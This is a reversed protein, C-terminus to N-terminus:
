RIQDIIRQFFPLEMQGKDAHPLEKNPCMVCRLNCASSSEIWFRIPLTDLIRKRKRYSNFIRYLTAAKRKFTM